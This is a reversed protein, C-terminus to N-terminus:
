SQQNLKLLLTSILKGFDVTPVIICYSYIVRFGNYKYSSLIYAFCCVM